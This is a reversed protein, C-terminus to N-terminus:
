QQPACQLNNITCFGPDTCSDAKPICRSPASACPKENASCWISEMQMDIECCAGVMGEAPCREVHGPCILSPLSCDTGVPNCTPSGTACYVPQQPDNTCMGSCDKSCNEGTEDDRCVGDGCTAPEDGGDPGTTCGLTQTCHGDDSSCGAFGAGLLMLAAITSIFSRMQVEETNSNKVYTGRPVRGTEPIGWGVMTKASKDLAELEFLFGTM